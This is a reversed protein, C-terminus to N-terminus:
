RLPVGRRGAKFRQKQKEGETNSAILEICAKLHLQMSYYSLKFRADAWSSHGLMRHNRGDAPYDVPASERAESSPQPDQVFPLGSKM